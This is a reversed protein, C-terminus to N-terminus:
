EIESDSVAAMVKELNWNSGWKKVCCDFLRDLDIITTWTEKQVEPARDVFETTTTKVIADLEQGTTEHTVKEVAFSIKPM